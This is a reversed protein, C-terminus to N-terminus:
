LKSKVAELRWKVDKLNKTMPKWEEFMRLLNKVEAQFDKRVVREELVGRMAWPLIFPNSSGITVPGEYREVSLPPSFPLSATELSYKVALRYVSSDEHIRSHGDGTYISGALSPSLERLLGHDPIGLNRLKLVFALLHTM